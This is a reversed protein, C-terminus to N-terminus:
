KTVTPDWEYCTYSNLDQLGEVEEPTLKFDFVDLNPELRDVKDTKPIPLMGKDIGWRILIQAPTKKYKEALKVVGAEKFRNGRCMPSYQEVIVNHSNCFDHIDQRVNWPSSEVQNLVPKYKTDVDWFEQLHKVGYNSVGISRIAGGDVLETLARWAELRTETYPAKSFPAHILLLDIYDIGGKRAEALRAEALRMTGEYGGTADDLKTTYFVDRRDTGTEKLFKSIGRCTAAENGYEQATDVLRYGKKLAEYVITEADASQYVGLGIAPINYGSSLLRLPVSVSM